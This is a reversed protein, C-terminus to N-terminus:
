KYFRPNDNRFKIILYYYFTELEFPHIKVILTILRTCLPSFFRKDYPRGDRIAAGLFTDIMENLRVILDRQYIKIGTKRAAAICASKEVGDASPSSPLTWRPLKKM